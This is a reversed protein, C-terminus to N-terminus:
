AGNTWVAYSWAYDGEALVDPPTFFNVPIDEYVRAIDPGEIRLVFCAEDDIDPLWTFRPPNETIQDQADPAYQIMMRGAPPQDLLPLGTASKASM